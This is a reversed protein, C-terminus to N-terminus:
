QVVVSGNVVSPVYAYGSKSVSNVSGQYTGHEKSRITLSAVGNSSTTSTGVYTSGSPTRVSLSVAAGAVLANNEDRVIVSTVVDHTPKRPNGVHAYTMTVSAVTMELQAPPTVGETVARYANIRGHTWLSGTGPIGDATLEIRQRVCTQDACLGSGWVLGALGAVFPSAMSTGSLTAYGGGDYTSYISSGPAAVDVWSGYSSFNSRADNSTTSAVAIVNEYYAPYSPSTTNSNGAAAVVVVGNNWAYNVADQLTASGSSGGLSMNIVDAGNNTAWIIGNAIWSYQGSGKDGLVKGRLLSSHYGVGAVGVGNNTAAAAIGAVHTGHGDVDEVTPSTTFNASAVIKGALDPHSGDIGTDLIAIRVTPSSTTVDWASAGNSDAADIKYLGWQSGLSLDSTIASKEAVFDPEAYLVNPNREYLRIATAAAHEPVRVVRVDIEEIRGEERGGLARHIEAIDAAAAGPVFRVLIRADEPQAAFGPGPSFGVVLSFIISVVVGRVMTGM